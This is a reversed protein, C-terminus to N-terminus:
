SPAGVITRGPMFIKRGAGDHLRSVVFITDAPTVPGAAPGAKDDFMSIPLAVLRAAAPLPTMTAM